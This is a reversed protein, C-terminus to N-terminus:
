RDDNDDGEGLSAKKGGEGQHSPGQKNSDKSEKKLVLSVNENETKKLPKEQEPADKLTSAKQSLLTHAGEQGQFGEDDVNDM